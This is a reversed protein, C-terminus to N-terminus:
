NTHLNGQEGVGQIPHLRKLYSLAVLAKPSVSTVWTEVIQAIPLTLQPGSFGLFIHPM